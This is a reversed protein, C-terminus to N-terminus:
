QASVRPAWVSAPSQPARWWGSALRQIWGLPGWSAVSGGHLVNLNMCQSPGVGFVWSAWPSVPRRKTGEERKM